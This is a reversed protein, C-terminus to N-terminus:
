GQENLSNRLEQASAERQELIELDKPDQEEGKTMHLLISRIARISSTDVNYLQPIVIKEKTPEYLPEETSWGEPYPGIKNIVTEAGNVYGKEGRHDEAIEWTNNKFVPIQGQGYEPVPTFTANAPLLYIERKNIKKELPDLIAEKSQKFEYTEPDYTYVLM